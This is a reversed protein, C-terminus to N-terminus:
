LSCENRALFVFFSDDHFAKWYMPSKRRGPVTVREPGLPHHNPIARVFNMFKSVHETSRTMWLQQHLARRMVHWGMASATSVYEPDDNSRDMAYSEPKSAFRFRPGSRSNSALGDCLDSIHNLPSIAEVVRHPGEDGVGCDM